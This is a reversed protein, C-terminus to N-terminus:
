SVCHILFPSKLTWVKPLRQEYRKGEKKNLVFLKKYPHHHIVM